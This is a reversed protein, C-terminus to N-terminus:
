KNCDFVVRTDALYDHLAQKEKGAIIMLYGICLIFTSLFRGFTERFLIELFTPKRDETSVVQIRMIRKGITRGSLYTMLIFYIATISYLIMDAPTVSFFVQRHLVNVNIAISIIGMILRVLGLPILLIIKDLLYATLRTFFGAYTRPQSNRDLEEESEDALAEEEEESTYNFAEQAADGAEYATVEERDEEAQHLVPEEASEEMETGTVLAGTESAEPKAAAEESTYAVPEEAVQESTQTVAEETIDVDAPILDNQM